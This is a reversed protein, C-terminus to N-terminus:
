AAAKIATALGRSQAPWNIGHERADACRSVMAAYADTGFMDMARRAAAIFADRSWDDMVIACDFRRAVELCQPHPGCLPPTGLQIATFFRNSALHLHGFSNAPNWWVVSYAASAVASSLTVADVLGHHTINPAAALAAGLGDLDRLRGFMRFQIDSLEPSLFHGAFTRTRDLSGCWIIEANRIDASQVSPVHPYAVDAVNRISHVERPWVDLLTADHILRRISPTVVLDMDPLLARHAALTEAPLDAIQEYAFYIICKPRKKLLALSAFVAGGFIILIDPSEWNVIKASEAVFHRTWSLSQPPLGTGDIRRIQFAHPANPIPPRDPEDPEILQAGSVWDCNALDHMIAAIEPSGYGVSVDCIGLIKLPRTM